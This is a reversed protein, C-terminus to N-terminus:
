NVPCELSFYASSDTGLARCVRSKEISGEPNKVHGDYLMPVYSGPNLTEDSLCSQGPEEAKVSILHLLLRDHVTSFLICWTLYQTPFVAATKKKFKYLACLSTNKNFPLCTKM